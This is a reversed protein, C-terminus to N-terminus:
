LIGEFLAQCVDIRNFTGVVEGEDNIVPLRKQGSRLLLLCAERADATAIIRMANHTMVEAVKLDRVFAKQQLSALLTADDTDLAIEYLFAHLVDQEALMGCLQGMDDVVPLADVQYLDMLDLANGLTEGPTTVVVHTKMLELAQMTHILM